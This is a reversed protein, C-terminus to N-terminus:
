QAEGLIILIDAGSPATEGEPLNGLTGSLEQSLTNAASKNKGSLNVILTKTYDEQANGVSVVNINEFEAELKDGTTKALGATKTGNLIAVRVQAPTPSPAEQSVSGLVSDSEGAVASSTAEGSEPEVVNVAGVRIIKNTGPRYLIAMKSNKFVLVRDGNQANQYFPESPLRSTDSVTALIPEENQPLEILRGVQEILKQSQQATLPANPDPKSLYNSYVFFGGGGVLILLALILGAFVVKKSFRIKFSMKKIVPKKEEDVKLFSRKVKIAYFRYAGFDLFGSDIYSRTYGWFLLTHM